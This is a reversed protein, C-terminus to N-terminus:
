RGIALKVGLAVFLTGVLRQLAIVLGARVALRTRARGAALAVGSMFLTGGLTFLLGLALMGLWAQVADAAVFQPLFAVFFLAVKPNLANTLAGQWFVSAASPPAVGAPAARSRLLGIGIWVLYGAGLWRIADFAAPSAALLAGIGAVALSVHLLCGAGVGLAALVGARTGRAAATGAVFLMDPGPTVYLLLAAAIFLPLQQVGLADLSV